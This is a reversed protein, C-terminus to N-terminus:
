FKVSVSASLSTGMAYRNYYVVNGGRRQFEQYDRGFINRAEFKFEVDQGFMAVGQRAVFDLVLGPGIKTTSAATPWSLAAPAAAPLLALAAARLARGM